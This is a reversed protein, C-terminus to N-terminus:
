RSDGNKRAQQERQERFERAAAAIREREGRLEGASFSLALSVIAGAFLAMGAIALGTQLPGARADLALAGNYAALMLLAAGGLRFARRRHPQAAAGRAQFFLVAALLLAVLARTLYGNM